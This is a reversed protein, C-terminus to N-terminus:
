NSSWFLAQSSFKGVILVIGWILFALAFVVKLFTSALFGIFSGIAAKLARSIDRSDFILEGILAGLFPGIIFGLPIPAIIGVILGINTGWVGYKSGGFRKTGQAPIVYDLVSIVLTIALSGWLAFSSMTIGDVFYLCLIGLWSLPLGPLAPLVSGIIGFVLLLVSLLLLFYDM